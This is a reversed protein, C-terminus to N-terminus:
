LVSVMQPDYPINRDSPKATCYFTSSQGEPTVALRLNVIRSKAKDVSLDMHDLLIQRAQTSVSNMAALAVIYFFVILGKM